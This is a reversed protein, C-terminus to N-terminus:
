DMLFFLYVAIYAMVFLDVFSDAAKKKKYDECENNSIVQFEQEM